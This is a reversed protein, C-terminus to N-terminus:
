EIAFDFNKSANSDWASCGSGNRSEFWVAFTKGESVPILLDYYGDVAIPTAEFQPQPFDISAFISLTANSGGCKARAASYRVLATDGAHLAGAASVSGDAAFNLTIPAAASDMSFWPESADDTPKLELGPSEMKFIYETSAASGDFAYSFELASGASVHTVKYTGNAYFFHGSLDSLGNGFNGEFTGDRHLNIENLWNGDNGFGAAGLVYHGIPSATSASSARDESSSADADSPASCASSLVAILAFPAFAFCHKSMAATYRARTRLRKTPGDFVTALGDAGLRKRRITTLLAASFHM